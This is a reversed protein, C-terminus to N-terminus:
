GNPEQLHHQEPHELADHPSSARSSGHNRDDFSRISHAQADDPPVVVEEPTGSNGATHGVSGFCSGTESPQNKSSKGTDRTSPRSSRSSPPAGAGGNGSDRHGTSSHVERSSLSEITPM